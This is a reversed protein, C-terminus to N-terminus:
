VLLKRTERKYLEVQPQDFPNVEMLEALYITELIKYQLFKGIDHASGQQFDFTFYPKKAQVYSALVGQIIAHQVAGYTSNQSIQALDSFINKPVVLSAKEPAPILFTTITHQPGGFYYQVVSHLDQSGISVTPLFGKGEKGLSEGMLQRAWGGLSAYAPMFIFTDHVMYGQKFYDFLKQAMEQPAALDVSQAGQLLTVIDIKLFYLVALGAASFISYRGGIMRPITLVPLQEQQAHQHVQSDVDTIVCINQRYMSPQHTRLLEFCLAAHSATELTTGTKSVVFTFVRRKKDQLLATYWQEFDELAPADISVLAHLTVAPRRYANSQLADYVAQVGFHSGGIGILVVDTITEAHLQVALQEIQQTITTDYIIKTCSLPSTYDGMPLQKITNLIM